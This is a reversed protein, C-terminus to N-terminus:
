VEEKPVKIKINKVYVLDGTVNTYSGNTYSTGICLEGKVATINDPTTYDILEEGDLYVTMSKFNNYYKVSIHHWTNLDVTIINKDAYRSYIILTNSQLTIYYFYYSTQPICLLPQYSSNEQLLMLDMDAIFVDSSYNLAKLRFWTSTSTGIKIGDSTIAADAGSGKAVINYGYGDFSGNLPIEAIITYPSEDGGKKKRTFPSHVSYCGVIQVKGNGQLYLTNIQSLDAASVRASTGAGIAIVGDAEPESGAELYAYVDSSGMNQVWFCMFKQEFIVKTEEGTLNITKVNSM